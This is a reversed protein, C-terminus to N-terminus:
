VANVGKDTELVQEGDCVGTWLCVGTSVQGGKTAFIYIQLRFSWSMVMLGALSALGNAHSIVCFQQKLVFPIDPHYSCSSGSLWKMITTPYALQLWGM